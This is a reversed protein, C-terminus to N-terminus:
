ENRDGLLPRPGRPHNRVPQVTSTKVERLYQRFLSGMADGDLRAHWILTAVIDSRSVRNGEARTAELLKELRDDVIEPLLFQPRATV